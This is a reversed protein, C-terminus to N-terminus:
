PKKEGIVEARAKALAVKEEVIQAKGLDRKEKIRKAHEAAREPNAEILEMFLDLSHNANALDHRLVRMEEYALDLRRELAAIHERMSAMERAREELLNAENKAKIERMQPRTRIFATLAGGIGIVNLLALLYASLTWGSGAVTVPIPNSM